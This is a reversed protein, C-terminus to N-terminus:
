KEDECQMCSVLRVMTMMMVKEKWSNSMMIWWEVPVVERACQRGQFEEM